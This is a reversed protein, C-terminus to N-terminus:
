SVTRRAPLKLGRRRCFLIKRCRCRRTGEGESVQSRPILTPPNKGAPTPGPEGGLSAALQSGDRNLRDTSVRRRYPKNLIINGRAHRKRAGIQHGEPPNRCALPLSCPRPSGPLLARDPPYASSEVFVSPLEIMSSGPSPQVGQGRSDCAQVPLNRLSFSIDSWPRIEEQSPWLSRHVPLIRPAKEPICPSEVVPHQSARRSWWSLAEVVM